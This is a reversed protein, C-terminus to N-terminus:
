QSATSRNTLVTTVDVDASDILSRAYNRLESDSNEPDVNDLRALLEKCLMLLQPSREILAANAMQEKKNRLNGMKCIPLQTANVDPYIVKNSEDYHWVGPAHKTM